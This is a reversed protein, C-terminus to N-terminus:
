SSILGELIAVAGDDLISGAIEDAAAIVSAEAHGMAVGRGAWRLMDLDNDGDGIALTDERPIRERARLVELASAKTIGCPALDMWHTMAISFYTDTLGVSAIAASFERTPAPADAVIIRPTRQERLDEFSLVTHIGHLDREPFLDTIWYGTGMDELAVRAGPMHEAMVDLATRPDFLIPSEVEFGGPLSPDLRATVSGNSCVIWGCDIGLDAAVPLTAVLPRGTALVVFHGAARVAAVAERIEQSMFEDFTMLTGDIDLAVM